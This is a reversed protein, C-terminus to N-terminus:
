PASTFRTKQLHTEFLGMMLPSLFSCYCLWDTSDGDFSYHLAVQKKMIIISNTIISVKIARWM